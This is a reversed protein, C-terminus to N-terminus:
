EALRAIGDSTIKIRTADESTVVIVQSKEELKRLHGRLDTMSVPVGANSLDSLLVRETLMRPHSLHLDELILREINM